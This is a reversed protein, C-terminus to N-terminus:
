SNYCPCLLSNPCLEKLVEGFDANPNPKGARVQNIAEDFFIYIRLDKRPAAAHHHGRPM